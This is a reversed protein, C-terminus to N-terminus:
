TRAEGRWLTAPPGPCEVDVAWLGGAGHEPVQEDGRATTIFLRNGDPAGLAVSTPNPVPVDVSLDQKGSADYHHIAGGGYLAVWLGGEADVCMGDPIGDGRDITIFDPVCDLLPGCPDYRYRAVAQTLSDIYYFYRGDPSWGMGNSLGVHELLAHAVWRDSASGAPRRVLRFLTASGAKEDYRMTGALAQGWPDCKADNFRIGEPGENLHLIPAIVGDRQLHGFETDTVILWRGGETPLAAGIPKAIQLASLIGGAADCVFLKGELIDVFSLEETGANWMPGEGLTAGVDSVLLAQTASDKMWEKPM